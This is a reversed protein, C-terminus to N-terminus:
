STPWRTVLTTSESRRSRYVVCTVRNSTRNIKVTAIAVHQVAVWIKTEKWIFFFLLLQKSHVNLLLSCLLAHSARSPDITPVFMTKLRGEMSRQEEMTHRENM